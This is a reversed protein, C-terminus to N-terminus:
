FCGLIIKLGFIDLGDVQNLIEERHRQNEHLNEKRTLVFDETGPGEDFMLVSVNNETEIRM